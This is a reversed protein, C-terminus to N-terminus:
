SGSFFYSLHPHATLWRLNHHSFILIFHNIKLLLKLLRMFSCFRSRGIRLIYPIHVLFIATFNLGIWFGGFENVFTCLLKLNFTNKAQRVRCVLTTVPIRLLLSQTLLGLRVTLRLSAATLSGAFLESRLNAFTLVFVDGSVSRHLALFHLYNEFESKCVINSEGCGSWLKEKICPSCKYLHAVTFCFKVYFSLYKIQLGLGTFQQSILKIGWFIWLCFVFWLPVASSCLCWSFKEPPWCKTPATSAKTHSSSFIWM